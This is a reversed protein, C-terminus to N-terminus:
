RPIFWDLRINILYSLPMSILQSVKKIVYPPINDIGCSFKPQLDNIINKIEDPITPSWFISNTVLEKKHYNKSNPNTLNFHTKFMDAVIDANEITVGDTKLTINGGTQKKNTIRNFINWM